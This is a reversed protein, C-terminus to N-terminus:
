EPSFVTPANVDEISIVVIKKIIIPKNKKNNLLVKSFAFSNLFSLSKVIYSIGIITFRSTISALRLIFLLSKASVIPMVATFRDIKFDPFALAIRKEVKSAIQLAKSQWGLSM